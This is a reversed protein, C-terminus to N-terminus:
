FFFFVHFLYSFTYCLFSFAKPIIIIEKMKTLMTLVSQLLKFNEAQEMILRYLPHAYLKCEPM